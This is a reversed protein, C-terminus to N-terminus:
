VAQLGDFGGKDFLTGCCTACFRDPASMIKRAMSQQLHFDTDCHRCTVHVYKKLISPPLSRAINYQHGARGSGGLAQAVARFERGHFTHIDPYVNDVVVHAVEHIISDNFEEMGYHEAFDLNFEVRRDWPFALGANESERFFAVKVKNIFEGEGRGKTLQQTWLQEAQTAVQFVKARIQARLPM